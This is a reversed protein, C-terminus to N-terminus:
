QINSGKKKDNNKKNKKKHGKLAEGTIFKLMNKRWYRVIIIKIKWNTQWDSDKGGEVM